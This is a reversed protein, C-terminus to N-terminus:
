AFGIFLPGARFDLSVRQRTSAPAMDGSKALSGTFRIARYPLRPSWVAWYYCASYRGVKRLVSLHPGTRFDLSVCQGTSAPAMDGSNVLFGILRPGRYPLRPM